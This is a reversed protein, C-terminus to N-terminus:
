AQPFNTFSFPHLSQNITIHYKKFGKKFSLLFERVTLNKNYQKNYKRRAIVFTNNQIGYKEVTLALRFRIALMERNLFRGNLSFYRGM